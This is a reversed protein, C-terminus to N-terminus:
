SSGIIGEILCGPTPGLRPRRLVVDRNRWLIHVLQIQTIRSGGRYFLKILSEIVFSGPAHDRGPPTSWWWEQPRPDGQHHPRPTQCHLAKSPSSPWWLEEMCAFRVSRSSSLVIQLHCTPHHFANVMSTVITMKEVM